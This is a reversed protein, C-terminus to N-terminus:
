LGSVIKWQGDVRAFRMRTDDSESKWKEGTPTAVSYRLVEFYDLNAQEDAIKLDKITAELKIGTVKAFDTKLKQQLTSYDTPPIGRAVDGRDSYTRAALALLASSDRAELANKYHQFVDLIARTQSNDPINTGPLTNHSCAAALLCVLAVRSM